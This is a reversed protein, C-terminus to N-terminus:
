IMIFVVMMAVIKPKKWEDVLVRLTRPLASLWEGEAKPQDRFRGRQEKFQVHKLTRKMMRALKAVDDPFQRMAEPFECISATALSAADCNM